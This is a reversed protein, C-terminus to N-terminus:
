WYAMTIFLGIVLILLLMTRMGGRGNGCLLLLPVVGLRSILAAWLVALVFTTVLWASTFQRLGGLLGDGSGLSLLLILVITPPGFVRLAEGADHQFQVETRRSGCEVEILSAMLVGNRYRGTAEVNVGNTLAVGGSITGHVNIPVNLYGGVAPDPNATRLVFMHLCDEVHQGYCLAEFLRRPSSRRYTGGSVSTNTYNQVVGRVTAIDGIATALQVRRM